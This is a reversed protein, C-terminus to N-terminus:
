HGLSVSLPQGMRRWAFGFGLPTRPRSILQDLHTIRRLLPIGALPPIAVIPRPFIAFYQRKRHRRTRVVTTGRMRGASKWVISQM